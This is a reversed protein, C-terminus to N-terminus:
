GEGPPVTARWNRGQPRTAKNTNPGAKSNEVQDGQFLVVKPATNDDAKGAVVYVRFPISVQKRLEGLLEQLAKCEVGAAKAAQIMEKGPM